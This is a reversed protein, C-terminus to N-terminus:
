KQIPLTIRFETYQGEESEVSMSGGHGQSVIEYSISLGLGTNGEGTPKTTFFPDFINTRIEPPIGPGNDRIRIEVHQEVQRTSVQIKPQFDEGSTRTKQDLAYCANNILNILVRGIEQPNLLVPPLNAALDYEMQINVREINARYGHYGLKVHEEVLANLNALRREGANSRAHDMMGNIIGTAREGNEQIHQVNTQIEELLELLLAHDKPDHSAQLREIEEKLEQTLGISGSAFNNVFNLPNKIEHAIGATMQGLSAMKEQIILQQQTTQLHTLTQELHRNKKQIEQTREAVTNELDNM